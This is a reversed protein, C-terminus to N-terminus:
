TCSYHGHLCELGLTPTRSDSNCTHSMTIAAWLKVLIVYPVSCGNEGGRLAAGPDAVTGSGAAEEGEGVTVHQTEATIRPARNPLPRLLDNAVADGLFDVFPFQACCNRYGDAHIPLSGARTLLAFGSDPADCVPDGSICFDVARSRVAAPLTQPTLIGGHQPSPAREGSPIIPLHYQAAPDSRPDAILLVARVSDLADPDVGELAHLAQNVVHAGQSYGVLGIRIRPCQVIRGRIIAQLRQWGENVSVFYDPGVPVAPYPLSLYETEAAPLINAAETVYAGVTSGMKFPGSLSQGSGRVGIVWYAPCGQAQAPKATVM